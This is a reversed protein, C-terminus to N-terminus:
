NRRVARAAKRGEEGAMEWLRFFDPHGLEMGVIMTERAVADFALAGDVGSYRYISVHVKPRWGDEPSLDVLLFQRVPQLADNLYAEVEAARPHHRPVFFWIVEDSKSFYNVRSHHFIVEANFKRQATLCISWLELQLQSLAADGDGDVCFSPEENAASM